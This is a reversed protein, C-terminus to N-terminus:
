HALTTTKPLAAASWHIVLSVGCGFAFMRQWDDMSIATNISKEPSFPASM